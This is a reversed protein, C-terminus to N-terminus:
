PTLQTEGFQTVSGDDLLAISQMQGTAIATISTTGQPVYTSMGYYSGRGIITHNARLLLHAQQDAAIAIYDNTNPIEFDGMIEGVIKASGDSHLILAHNDALAIDVVDHYTGAAMSNGWIIADNNSLLAASSDNGARVDVVSTPFVPVDCQNFSNNGWAFVKGDKTLALAHDNGASIKTINNTQPVTLSPSSQAGWLTLTNDNKLVMCFAGGASISMINTLTPTPAGGCSKNGWNILKGDKTLALFTSQRASIAHINTLIGPYVNLINQKTSTTPSLQKTPDNQMNNTYESATQEDLQPLSSEDNVTVFDRSVWGFKRDQYEVFLWLNDASIGIIQIKQGKQLGIIVAGQTNPKARVRLSRTIVEGEFVRAITPSPTTDAVPQANISNLENIISTEANITTSPTSQFYHIYAIICICSVILARIGLNFVANPNTIISRLAEGGEDVDLTIGHVGLVTLINVIILTIPTILNLPEPLLYWTLGVMLILYCLNLMIQRSLINRVEQVTFLKNAVLGLPNNEKFEGHTDYPQHKIENISRFALSAYYGFAGFVYLIINILFVRVGFWIARIVFSILSEIM